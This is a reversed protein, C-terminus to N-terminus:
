PVLLWQGCTLFHWLWTLMWGILKLKQTLSQKQSNRETIYLLINKAKTM